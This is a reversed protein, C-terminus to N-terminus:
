RISPEDGSEGSSRSARPSADAATAPESLETHTVVSPASKLRGRSFFRVKILSSSDQEAREAREAAHETLIRTRAGARGRCTRRYLWTRGTWVAVVVMALGGFGSLRALQGDKLGSETLPM